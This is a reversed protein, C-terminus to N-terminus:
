EALLITVVTLTNYDILPEITASQFLEQPLSEVKGVVGASLGHPIGQELGSTIIMAGADLVIDKPILNMKLSLGFEGELVGITRSSNLISVALKSNTDNLLRLSSTLSNTEFIKGLIVGNGVIVANGPQVRDESGKNLILLNQGFSAERGIVRALVFPRQQTEIFQLSKRLEQNEIKWIECQSKEPAIAILQQKLRENEAKLTTQQHLYGTANKIRNGIFYFQEQVWFVPHGIISIKQFLQFFGILNLFLIILLILGILILRNRIINKFM